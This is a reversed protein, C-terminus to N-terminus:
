GDDQEANDVADHVVSPSLEYNVHHRHKHAQQIKRGLISGAATFIRRVFEDGTPCARSDM